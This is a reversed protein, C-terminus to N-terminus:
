QSTSRRYDRNEHGTAKGLALARVKSNPWMDVWHRCYDLIEDFSTRGSFILVGVHDVFERVDEPSAKARRLLGRVTWLLALTEGGLQDYYGVIDYKPVIHAQKTM